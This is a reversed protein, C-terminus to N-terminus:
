FVFCEHVFSLTSMGQTCATAATVKSDGWEQEMQPRRGVRQDYVLLRHKATGAVVCGDELWTLTTTCPLLMNGARTPKGAKFALLCQQTTVDWVAPEKADGGVALQSSDANSAQTGNNDHHYAVKATCHGVCSLECRVRSVLLSRGAATSTAM